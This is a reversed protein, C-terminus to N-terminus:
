SRRVEKGFLGQPRVVLTILVIAFLTLAGKSGGLYVAAYAEIMGVVFAAVTAGTVSGLGGLIVTIFSYALTADGVHPALSLIPTVLAGTVGALGTALAFAFPFLAKTRMGLASAVARDEAMARMGRGVNTRYILWYVLAIAVLCAVLVIMNAYPFYIGGLRWVGTVPFSFQPSEAGFIMLIGTALVLYFGMTVMLTAQHDEIVRELIIAEFLWGLAATAAFAILVAVPYPLGLMATCYYAVYGGMVYFGGHAFNVVGLIGFILTFGLALLTYQSGLSIGILGTTIFSEM